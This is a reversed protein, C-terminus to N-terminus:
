RDRAIRRAYSHKLWYPLHNKIRRIISLIRQEAGTLSIDTNTVYHPQQNQALLHAQHNAGSFQEAWWHICQMIYPTALTEWPQRKNNINTNFGLKTFFKHWQRQTEEWSFKEAQQHGKNILKTRQQPLLNIIADIWNAPATDNEVYLAADGCIEPISSRRGTIVPCGEQMAELPPMGFGEYGSTFILASANAYIYKLEGDSVRGLYHIRKNHPGVRKMLEEMRGEPFWGTLVLDGNYNKDWLQRMIDFLLEHRKHPWANAPYFLYLKPLSPLPVPRINASLGSANYFYPVRERPLGVHEMLKDQSFKSVTTVYECQKLEDYIRRRQLLDEKSFMAHVEPLDLAMTDPMAAIHTVGKVCRIINAGFLPHIVHTPAFHNVIKQINQMGHHFPWMFIDHGVWSRLAEIGCINVVWVVPIRNKSAIGHLVKCCQEAVRQQGGNSLPNLETLDVLISINQVSTESDSRSKKLPFMYPDLKLEQSAARNAHEWFKMVATKLQGEELSNALTDLFYLLTGPTLPDNSYKHAVRRIEEVREFAGSSTKTMAYERSAALTAHVPEPTGRNSLRLWLDTDMTYKLNTDVEGIAILHKRNIFTSPQLIYNLGRAMAERNFPTVGDPFFPRGNEGNIDVRLGDGYYFPAEPNKQYAEAVKFLASPLLFDDSNLWGVLDGHAKRFGKNIADSQGNDPESVWSYLQGEYKKIVDITNDTSGGDIVILELFPYNQDLVSKISQEIYAGQNLSPTVITIIPLETPNM